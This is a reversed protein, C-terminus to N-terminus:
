PKIDTKNEALKNLLTQLEDPTPLGIYKDMLKGGNFFLLTPVGKVGFRRALEPSQDLNVKYFVIKGAFPASQRELEPELTQCLHCWPAYFEVFVPLSANAIASDFERSSLSRVVGGAPASPRCAGLNLLLILSLAAPLIAAFRFSMAMAFSIARGSRQPHGSGRRKGPRQGGSARNKATHM